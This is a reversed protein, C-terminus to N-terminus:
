VEAEAWGGSIVYVNGRVAPRSSDQGHAVEVPKIPAFHTPSPSHVSKDEPVDPEESEAGDMVVGDENEAEPEDPDVSVLKPEDEDDEPEQRTQEPKTKKKLSLSIYTDLFSM